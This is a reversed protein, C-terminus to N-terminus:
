TVPVCHLLPLGNFLFTWTLIPKFTKSKLWKTENACNQFGFFFLFKNEPWQCVKVILNGTHTLWVFDEESVSQFGLSTTMM